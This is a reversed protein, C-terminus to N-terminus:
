VGSVQVCEMGCDRSRGDRMRLINSLIYGPRIGSYVM